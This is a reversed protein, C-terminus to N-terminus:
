PGPWIWFRRFPYRYCKDYFVNWNQKDIIQSCNGAEGRFLKLLNILPSELTNLKRM